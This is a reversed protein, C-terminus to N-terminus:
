TLMCAQMDDVISGLDSTQYVNTMWSNFAKDVLDNDKASQIWTMTKSELQM